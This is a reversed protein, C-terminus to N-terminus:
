SQDQSLTRFTDAMAAPSVQDHLAVFVTDDGCITGAVQPLRAQDLALGVLHASGPPTKMVILHGAAEISQVWEALIRGLRGAAWDQDAVAEPLMYRISGGRKVKVAGLQDLDRSVTAQNVAFGQASLRASVEEQSAIAEGRLLDAIIRQRRSRADTV